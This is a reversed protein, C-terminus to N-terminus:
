YLIFPLDRQKVPNCWIDRQGIVTLTNGFPAAQFILCICIAFKFDLRRNVM